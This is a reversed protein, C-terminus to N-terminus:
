VSSRKQYDTIPTQLIIMLCFRLTKAMQLYELYIQHDAGELEQVQEFEMSDNKHDEENM